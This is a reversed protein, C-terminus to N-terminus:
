TFTEPCFFCRVPRMSTGCRGNSEVVYSVGKRGPTQRFLIYLFVRRHSPCVPSNQLKLPILGTPRKLKRRVVGGKKRSQFDNDFEEDSIGINTNEGGDKSLGSEAIMGETYLNIVETMPAIYNNKKM